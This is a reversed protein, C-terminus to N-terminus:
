DGAGPALAALVSGCAAVALGTRNLLEREGESRPLTNAFMEAAEDRLRGVVRRLRDPPMTLEIFEGAPPGDRDPWGLDDLLLRLDDGFARGLRDAREYEGADIALWLDGIGSLHDLVQIYLAERQEASIKVPM